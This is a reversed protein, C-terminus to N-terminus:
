TDWSYVMNFVTLLVPRRSCNVLLLISNLKNEIDSINVGTYIKFNIIIQGDTINFDVNFDLENKHYKKQIYTKVMNYFLHIDYNEYFTSRHIHVPIRGIMTDLRRDNRTINLTGM